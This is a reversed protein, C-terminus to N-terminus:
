LRAFSLVKVLTFETTVGCSRQLYTLRYTIRSRCERRIPCALKEVGQVYDYPAMYTRLSFWLGATVLVHSSLDPIEGLPAWVCM